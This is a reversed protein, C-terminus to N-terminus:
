RLDAVEALRAGTSTFTRIIAIDRLDDFARSGCRSSFGSSTQDQTPIDTLREPLKPKRMKAMPSERVEGDEVCWHLLRAARTGRSPTAPKYRALQDEIFAAVHERTIGSVARPM